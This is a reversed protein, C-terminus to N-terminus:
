ISNQPEQQSEASHPVDPLNKWSWFDGELLGLLWYIGLKSRGRPPSARLVSLYCTSCRGTTLNNLKEFLAWKLNWHQGVPLWYDAINV